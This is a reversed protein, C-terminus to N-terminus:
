VGAPPCRTRDAACPHDVLETVELQVLLAELQAACAARHRRLRLGQAHQEQQHLLPVARDGLRLRHRLQPRALLDRDGGDLPRHHPRARRHLIVRLFADARHALVAVLEHRRHVLLGRRAALWGRRREGVRPGAGRPDWRRAVVEDPARRQQGLQVGREGAAELSRPVTHEHESLGADPLAPEQALEPGAGGRTAHADPRAVAHLEFARRGVPGHLLDQVLRQAIARVRLQAAPQPRRQRVDRLAHRLDLGPEALQRDRRRDPGRAEAEELARRAKQHAQDLLLREHQREVIQLAGVQRRQPKQM